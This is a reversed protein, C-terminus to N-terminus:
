LRRDRYPSPPRRRRGRRRSTQLTLAGDSVPTPLRALMWSAAADGATVSDQTHGHRRRCFRLVTLDAADIVAVVQQHRRHAQGVARSRIGAAPAHADVDIRFFISVKATRSQDRSVAATPLGLSM